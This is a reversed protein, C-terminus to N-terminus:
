CADVNEVPHIAGIDILEKMTAICSKCIRLRSGYISLDKSNVQIVGSFGTRHCWPREKTSLHICIRFRPYELWKARRKTIISKPGPIRQIIEM